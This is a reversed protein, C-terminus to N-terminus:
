TSTTCGNSQRHRARLRPHGALRADAASPPRAFPSKPKYAGATSAATAWSTATAPWCIRSITMSIGSAASPSISASRARSRRATNAWPKPPARAGRPWRPSTAQAGHPLGTAAAAMRLPPRNDSVRQTFDDAATETLCISSWIATPTSSSKSLSSRCASCSRRPYRHALGDAQPQSQRVPHGNLTQACAARCPTRRIISSAPTLRRTDPNAHDLWLDFSNPHAPDTSLEARIDFNVYVQFPDKLAWWEGMSGDPQAPLRIDMTAHGGHGLRHPALRRPDRRRSRAITM